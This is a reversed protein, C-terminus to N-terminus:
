KPGGQRERNQIRIIDAKTLPNKRARLVRHQQHYYEAEPSMPNDRNPSGQWKIYAEITKQAYPDVKTAADTLGTGDSIYELIVYEATIFESLQLEGRERLIKYGDGMNADKYGFDRGLHEGFENQVTDYSTLRWIARDDESTGWAIANGADDYNNLRNIADNQVLPIVRQGSIVGVKIKDVYDCPLVVAKTDPDVPLKKTQVVRLSDFHLERLCDTAHKLYQFYFHIPYGKQNLVSKVIHNLSTYTM